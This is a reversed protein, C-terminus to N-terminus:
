GYPSGPVYQGIELRHFYFQLSLVGAALPPDNIAARLQMGPGLLYARESIAPYFAPTNAGLTWNMINIPLGSGPIVVSLGLDHPNAVEGHFVHVATVLWQEEDPVAPALVPTVGVGGAVAVEEQLPLDWGLTDVTAQITDQVTAPGQLDMGTSSARDIGLTKAIWALSEQIKYM